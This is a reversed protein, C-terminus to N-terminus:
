DPLHYKKLSQSILFDEPRPNFGRPKWNLHRKFTSDDFVMDESQRRVMEPNVEKWPGLLSAARVLNSLVARPLNLLRVKRKGCHAVREAMKRYRLTSGGCAQGVLLAGTDHKLADVALKALDDAHVPQRLGAAGRSLPIFGTREGIKLLLSVNSDMGCGYILTPRIIVLSINRDACVTKLRKEQDSIRNVTESESAEASDAKTFVSTTSFVVAKRLVMKNEVLETALELPACSVLFEVQEGDAQQPRCWCVRETAQLPAVPAKRSVATVAMGAADLRPLLFIGLQSSAGTVLVTPPRNM